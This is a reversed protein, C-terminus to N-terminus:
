GHPSDIYRARTGKNLLRADDGAKGGVIWWWDFTLTSDACRAGSSAGGRPEAVPAPRGTHGLRIDWKYLCLGQEPYLPQM